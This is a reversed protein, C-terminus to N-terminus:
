SEVVAIVFTAVVSPHHALQTNTTHGVACGTAGAAYMQCAGLVESCNAAAAEM